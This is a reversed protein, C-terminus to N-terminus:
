LCTSYATDIILADNSKKLTRFVVDVTLDLKQLNAAAERGEKTARYFHPTMLLLDHIKENSIDGTKFKLRQSDAVSFGMEEVCSLDQPDSKKVETYIIERLEKLHDPGPEVLIVRGGPKLIKNFGEFSQFGFVCVIIDVSEGDVPPQRNTGVIWTIQKNRKAAEAIAAKSIDLGIFSLKSNGKKVKLYNFVYDFYYGEGCGADMLCTEWKGTVQTDTIQLLSIEALKTAIPEYLGSNLFKARAAVMEKSDGPQKTRKHQVPLLNVYGQRAVDFVHGNECVLQKEHFEFRAGDIPCALNHAKIINM